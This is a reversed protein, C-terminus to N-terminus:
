LADLDGCCRNRGGGRTYELKVTTANFNPGNRAFKVTGEPIVELTVKAVDV